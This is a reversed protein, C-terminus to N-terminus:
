QYLNMVKFQKGSTKDSNSILIFQIYKFAVRIFGINKEQRLM